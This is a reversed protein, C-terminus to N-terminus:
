FPLDDDQYRSAYALHDDFFLRAIYGSPHRLNSLTVTLESDCLFESKQLLYNAATPTEEIEVRVDFPGPMISDPNFRFVIKETNMDVQDVFTWQRHFLPIQPRYVVKNVWQTLLNAPLLHLLTSYEANSRCVIYRLSDLGMKKPVLVEAHRHRVIQDRESNDFRANHYVLDFPIQSLFSIDTGVNTHFSGLNGDSFCSDALSLVAQAEFILYVPVPCHSNRSRLGVPRFGENNYQTPTKPRFYLRVYDRWKPDTRAIIEPSAIDISLRNTNAIQTRSLIEGQRLISIVNTIDTCHFLYRPWWERAKDLWPQIQMGAIHQRIASIEPQSRLTM